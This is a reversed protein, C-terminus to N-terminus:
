WSWPEAAKGRCFAEPLNCPGWLRHQREVTTWGTGPWQLSQAIGAGIPPYSSVSLLFVANSSYACSKGNLILFENGPRLGSPTSV